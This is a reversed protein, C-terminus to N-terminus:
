GHTKFEEMQEVEKSRNQIGGDTRFGKMQKKFDKMQQLNTERNQTGRDTNSAINSCYTTPDNAKARNTQCEIAHSLARCRMGHYSIEIHHGTVHDARFTKHQLAQLQIRTACTWMGLVPSPLPPPSPPPSRSRPLSGRHGRELELQFSRRLALLEPPEVERSLYTNGM